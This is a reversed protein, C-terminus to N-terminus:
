FSPGKIPLSHALKSQSACERCFTCLTLTTTPPQAALKYFGYLRGIPRHFLPGGKTAPAVVKGGAPPPVVFSRSATNEYTARLLARTTTWQACGAYSTCTQRLLAGLRGM